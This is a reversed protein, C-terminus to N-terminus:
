RHTWAGRGVGGGAPAPRAQPFLRQVEPSVSMGSAFARDIVRPRLGTSRLIGRINGNADAGQAEFVFLDQMTIVDGEMGTIEAINTIRRSGDQLRALHVVLNIASAVQQRVSKAPLEIGAMLVMTELRALADRASNAHVTTLSGDHGTNMAQLMDLAEGARCEGVIIRDPRMRLANVVLDRITVRKRGTLDPPRAELRCVHEQMLRLEAADEISVIRETSKIYSSCINLLTTKGSGTGGSIVMNARAGVCVRLFGMGEPSISGLRVLDEETLPRRGFKRITLLPGDISIPPIVAHVRSGDLLRADLMPSEDDIRRGVAKAIFDIIRLLHEEDEFKRDTPAIKGEREVYVHNPGVAMVETLDDDLVLDRLPGLADYYTILGDVPADLV